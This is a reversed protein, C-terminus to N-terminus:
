PRVEESAIRTLGILSRPLCRQLSYLPQCKLNPLVKIFREPRFETPQPWNAEDYHLHLINVMVNTKAPLLYKGLQTDESLTRLATATAPPYMRLSELIIAEIYKFHGQFVGDNTLMQTPM